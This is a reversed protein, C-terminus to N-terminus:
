APTMAGIKWRGDLFEADIRLRAAASGEQPAGGDAQRRIVQNVFVYVTARDGDISAVASKPITATVVAQQQPALDRVSGFIREFEPRFAPTIVDAADAEAQQLRAYDFSYVKTVAEGVQASVEATAGVDTLATNAASGAFETRYWQVGFFAAAATLLVTVALLM